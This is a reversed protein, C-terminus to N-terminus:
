TVSGLEREIKKNLELAGEILALDREIVSPAANDYTRIFEDRFEEILDDDSQDCLGIWGDNLVSCIWEWASDEEIQRAQYPVMFSLIETRLASSITTM